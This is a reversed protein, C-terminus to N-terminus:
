KADLNKDCRYGDMQAIKDVIDHTLTAFLPTLATSQMVKRVMGDVGIREAAADM